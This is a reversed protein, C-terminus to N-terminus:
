RLLARVRSGNRFSEGLEVENLSEAIQLIIVRAEEQNAQAEEVKGLRVNVTSLSAL